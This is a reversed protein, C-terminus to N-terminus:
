LYTFVIFGYTYPKDALRPELSNELWPCMYGLRVDRNKKIHLEALLYVRYISLSAIQLNLVIKCEPKNM